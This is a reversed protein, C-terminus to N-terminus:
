KTAEVYLSTYYTLRLTELKNIDKIKSKRFNLKKINKFGVESLTDKLTSFNYMHKHQGDEFFRLNLENTASIPDIYFDKQYKNIIIDIDPILLRITGGPKLISFCRNLFNLAKKKQLHELFHSAYVIDVSNNRFPVGLRMDWITINRPWKADLINKNILNLKFLLKKIQYFYPFKALIASLSWDLSIWGPPCINGSGFNVMKM